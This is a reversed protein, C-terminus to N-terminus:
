KLLPGCIALQTLRHVETQPVVLLGVLGEKGAFKLVGSLLRRFRDNEVPSSRSNQLRWPMMNRFSMVSACRVVHLDWHVSLDGWARRERWSFTLFKKLNQKLLPMIAAFGASLRDAILTLCSSM